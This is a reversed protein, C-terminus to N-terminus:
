TTDCERTLETLDITVKIFGSKSIKSGYCRKVGVHRHRSEFVGM